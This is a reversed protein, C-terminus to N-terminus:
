VAKRKPARTEPIAWVLKALNFARTPNVPSQSAVNTHVNSEFVAPSKSEEEFRERSSVM